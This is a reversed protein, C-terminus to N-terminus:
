APRRAVFHFVHWGARPMALTDIGSGCGLDVACDGIRVRWCGSWGRTPDRDEHEDYYEAWGDGAVIV